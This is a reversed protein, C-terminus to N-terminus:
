PASLRWRCGSQRRPAATPPAVRRANRLRSPSRRDPLVTLVTRVGPGSIVSRKKFTAAQGHSCGGGAQWPTDIRAARYRYRTTSVAAPNYLVTEKGTPV